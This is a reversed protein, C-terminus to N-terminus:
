FLLSKSFKGHNLKLNLRNGKAVFFCFCFFEFHNRSCHKQVFKMVSVVILDYFRINHNTSWTLCQIINQTVGSNYNASRTSINKCPCPPPPYHSHLNSWFLCDASNPGGYSPKHPFNDQIFLVPMVPMDLRILLLVQKMKNSVYGTM